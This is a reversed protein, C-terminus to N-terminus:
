LDKGWIELHKLNLPTPKEPNTELRLHRAKISRGTLPIEWSAEVKEATWIKNWTKGDESASLTLGTARAQEMDSRNVVLVGTLACVKGLDVSVWPNKESSTHVAFGGPAAGTLFDPRAKGSSAKLEVGDRSSLVSGYTARNKAFSSLPQTIDIGKWLSDEPFWARLYQASTGAYEAEAIFEKGVQNGWCYNIVLKGNFDIFDIDSNDINNAKAVNARQEPTLKQNFIVKDADEGWMIPNFPSSEWKVLDRSRTLLLVYGKKGAHITSFLYHWGDLYRILHPSCLGRDFGHRNNAPTLTWNVLDKSELFRAAFTGNTVKSFSNVEISMLYRGDAKCVSLNCLGYDKDSFITKEEWNILDKSTFLTITNGFWTRGPETCPKTGYVYVTDDKVFVCPFKHTAGFNSVETQTDHDMIRLRSAKRHWELRYLKGKFVFPSTECLDLDVTGFKKVVPPKPLSAEDSSATSDACGTFPTCALATILGLVRLSTSKM